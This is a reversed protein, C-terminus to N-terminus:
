KNRIQEATKTTLIRSIEINPFRHDKYIEDLEKLLAVEEAKWARGIAMTPSDTGRRKINRVAPHAYREHTSLGRRSKFSMSCAGCRFRGESIQTNGSCEPIHCRVGHLKRSCRSCQRCDWNIPVELHHENLHRDLDTLNMFLLHVERKECVPCAIENGMLPVLITDPSIGVNDDTTGEPALLDAVAGGRSLPAADSAEINKDFNAFQNQEQVVTGFTVLDNAKTM